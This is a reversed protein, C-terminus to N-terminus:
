TPDEVDDGKLISEPIENMKQYKMQIVVLDAPELSHFIKKNIDSGTVDGISMVVRAFLISNLETIASQAVQMKIPDIKSTALSADLGSSLAAAVSMDMTFDLKALEKVRMDKSIAIIDENKVARMVVNKHCTGDKDELGYYLDFEVTRPM